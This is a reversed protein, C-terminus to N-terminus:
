CPTHNNITNKDNQTWETRGSKINKATDVIKKERKNKQVNNRTFIILYVRVDHQVSAASGYLSMLRRFLTTIDFQDTPAQAVIVDNTSPTTAAQVDNIAQGGDHWAVSYFMARRVHM